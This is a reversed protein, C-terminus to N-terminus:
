HPRIADIKLDKIKVYQDICTAWQNKIKPIEELNSLKFLHLIIEIDDHTWQKIFEHYMAFMVTGNMKIMAETYDQLSYQTTLIKISDDLCTKADDYTLKLKKLGAIALLNLTDLSEPSVNLTNVNHYQLVLGRFYLLPLKLQVLHAREDERLWRQFGQMLWPEHFEIKHNQISLKIGELKKSVLALKIITCLPDIFEVVLNTVHQTMRGIASNLGSRAYSLLYDNM